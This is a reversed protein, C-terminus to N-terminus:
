SAGAEKSCPRAEKYDVVDELRLYDESERTLHQLQIVCRRHEKPSTDWKGPYLPGFFTELELFTEYDQGPQPIFTIALPGCSRSVSGGSSTPIGRKDVSVSPPTVSTYVKDSGSSYMSRNLGSVITLPKNAPVIYEYYISLMKAKKPMGIARGKLPIWSGFPVNTFDRGGSDAYIMDKDGKAYCSKGPYLHTENRISPFYVRIRAEVAPDYDAKLHSSPACASLIVAMLLITAGNFLRCVFNVIYASDMNKGSPITETSVIFGAMIWKKM